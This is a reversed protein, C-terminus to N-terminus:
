RGYRSVQKTVTYTHDPHEMLWLEVFKKRWRYDPTEVGKAELLEFSGDHHAIRFDVKHTVKFAPRGDKTHTWAEIKYQREWDMIEGAAKRLELEQAIGAEFRSDYRIGNYVTKSANYKNFNMRYM